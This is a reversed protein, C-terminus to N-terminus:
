CCVFEPNGPFNTNKKLFDRETSKNAKKFVVDDNLRNYYKLSLTSVCDAKKSSKTETQPLLKDESM